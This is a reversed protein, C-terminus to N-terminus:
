LTLKIRFFTKLAVPISVVLFEELFAELKQAKVRTWPKLTLQFSKVMDKMNLDPFAERFM